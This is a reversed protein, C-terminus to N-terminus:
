FTAWTKQSQAFADGTATFNGTSEVRIRKGTISETTIDGAVSAAEDEELSIGSAISVVGLENASLNKVRVSDGAELVINDKEENGSTVDLASISKQESSVIVRGNEAAINQTIIDGTANIRVLQDSTIDANATVTNAGIVNIKELAVEGGVTDGFLINGTGAKITLNQGGASAGDLTNTFTINGGDTIVEEEILSSDIVLNSEVTTAGDIKIEGSNTTIAQGTLTIENGQLVVTDGFTTVNGVTIESKSTNTPDLSSKIWDLLM